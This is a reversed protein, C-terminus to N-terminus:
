VEVAAGSSAEALELLLTEAEDLHKELLERAAALDGREGARIIKRHQHILEPLGGHARDVTALALRLEAVSNRMAATLRECGLLAVLAQHFALDCNVVAWLDGADAAADCANAADHVAALDPKSAGAVEELARLELLRRVRFIDVIDDRRVQAVVVGRHLTHTTLAEGALLRLAERVTNRSVDMASSLPVERLQTGPPLEGALIRERLADAVRAATSSAPKIRLGALVEDDQAKAM